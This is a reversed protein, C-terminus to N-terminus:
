LINYNGEPTENSPAPEETTETPAPGDTTDVTAPEETTDIAVPGETTEMPGPEGTTDITAPGETTEIEAPEETTEIAAPEETTEPLIENPPDSPPGDGREAEPKKIMEREFQGEANDVNRGNVFSIVIMCGLNLIHSVSSVFDFM